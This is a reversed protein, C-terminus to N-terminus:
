LVLGLLAPACALSSTFAGVLGIFIAAILWLLIPVVTFVCVGILASKGASAACIPKEDRKIAWYILGIIPFFFCLVNLANDKKDMQQPPVASATNASFQTGFGGCYPCTEAGEPIAAGCHACRKASFNQTGCVPCYFSGAPLEAGCSKCTRPQAGNNAYVNDM